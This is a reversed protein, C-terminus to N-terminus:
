PKEKKHKVGLRDRDFATLGRKKALEIQSTYFTIDTRARAVDLQLQIIKSEKSTMTRTRNKLCDQHWEIPYKM